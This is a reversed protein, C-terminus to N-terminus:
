FVVDGTRRKFYRNQKQLSIFGAPLSYVLGSLSLFTGAFQISPGRWTDSIEFQSQNQAPQENCGGLMLSLVMAAIMQIIFGARSQQRVLAEAQRNIM